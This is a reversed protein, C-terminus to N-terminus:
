VFINYAFIRLCLLIFWLWFTKIDFLSKFFSLPAAFQNYNTRTAVSIAKHSVSTNPTPLLMFNLSSQDIGIGKVQCEILRYNACNEGFNYCINKENTTKTNQWERDICIKRLSKKSLQLANSQTRNGIGRASFEDISVLM